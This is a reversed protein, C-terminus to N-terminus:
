SHMLKRLFFFKGCRICRCAFLALSVMCVVDVQKYFNCIIMLYKLKIFSKEGQFRKKKITAFGVDVKLIYYNSGSIRFGLSHCSGEVSFFIDCVSDLTQNFSYQM